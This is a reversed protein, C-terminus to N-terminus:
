FNSGLGSDGNLCIDFRLGYCGTVSEFRCTALLQLCNRQWFIM